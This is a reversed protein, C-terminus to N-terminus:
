VKKMWPSSNGVAKAGSGGSSAWRCCVKMVSNSMEGGGEAGQEFAAILEEGIEALVEGGFAGNDDFALADDVAHATDALGAGGDFVGPFM